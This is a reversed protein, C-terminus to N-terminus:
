KNSSRSRIRKNANKENRRKQEGLIIGSVLRKEQRPNCLANSKRKIINNNQFRIGPVVYIRLIKLEQNKIQKM